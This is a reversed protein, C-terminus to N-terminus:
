NSCKKYIKSRKLSSGESTNALKCFKKILYKKQESNGEKYCQNVMKEMGEVVQDPLEHTNWTNWKKVYEKLFVTDPIADCKLENSTKNVENQKQREKYLAWAGLCMCHNNKPRSKNIREASWDSQQKTAMSFNKTKKDIKFCIQHLGTNVGQESCYGRGDWSGRLDDSHKQCPKLEDGYINKLNGGFQEKNDKKFLLYLIGIIVIKDIM